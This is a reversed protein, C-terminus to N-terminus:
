GQRLVIDVAQCRECFGAVDLPQVKENRHVEVAVVSFPQDRVDVFRQINWLNVELEPHAIAVALRGRDLCWFAPADHNM